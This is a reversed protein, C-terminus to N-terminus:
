ISANAMPFAVKYDLAEIIVKLKELNDSASELIDMDVYGATISLDKGDEDNLDDAHGVIPQIKSLAQKRSDGFLMLGRVTHSMFTGRLCHMGLVNRGITVNDYLGTNKLYKRFFEEAYYSAKGAKPKFGNFIRDHKLAKVKDLYDLFGCEILKSHIPVKHKSHNNKHSKEIGVGASEDTLNFYWIGSKEDQLVDAQPNLQCIENVRAGTFLGIMPLWFKHSDKFNKSQGDMLPCNMLKTVEDLRLSRQKHDGSERLGGFDKYNIHEVDLLPAYDEYHLKLYKFFQRASGVYTNKFTDPSMLVNNNDKADIIRQHINLKNYADSNGGRGGAVKVLLKFFGNVEKQTILNIKKDGLYGKIFLNGFSGLKKKNTPHGELFEDYAASLMPAKNDKPKEAIPAQQTTSAGIITITTLKDYADAKAKIRVIELEKEHREKDEEYREKLTDMAFSHKKKQLLMQLSDVSKKKKGVVESAELLECLLNDNIEDFDIMLSDIHLFLQKAEGALRYAAPIAVQRSQTRLSQTLESVHLISRFRDPVSLRFYLTNGRRYLHSTKSM